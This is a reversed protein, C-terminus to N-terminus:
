KHHGENGYLNGSLTTLYKLHSMHEYSIKKRKKKNMHAYL